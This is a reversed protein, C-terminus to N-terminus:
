TKGNETHTHTRIKDLDAPTSILHPKDQSCDVCEEWSSNDSLKSARTMMDAAKDGEAFVTAPFMTLLITIALMLALLESQKARKM